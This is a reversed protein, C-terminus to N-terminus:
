SPIEDLIGTFVPIMTQTDVIAYVFPRNLIVEKMEDPEEICAEDAMEVVTAAAAKTGETDVDIHTKHLVRNIFLDGTATDAMRTFDAGPVFASEMGMATLQTSLEIDFDYSFKPLGAKVSCAESNTLTTHLDSASLTELYAQPTMGEEPLLACFAYSGGQYYKRFGKAHADSLYRGEESFMMKCTQGVGSVATFTSDACNDETYTESWKADFVVANVLYMVAEPLISDLVEPIMKDTNQSVWNNIDQLTSDDFPAEFAAASYYDKTKQLFDQKVQVRDEDDRIWVSNATRLKCNGTDPLGTRYTYLYDNLYDLPINGLTQEMEPLTSGGAGNATMALAQMVSYPSVLINQDQKEAATNQLLQLAFATQSLVFGEDAPKGTVTQPALSATLDASQVTAQTGCATMSLALLGAAIAARIRNHKM